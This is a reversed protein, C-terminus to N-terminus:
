PIKVLDALVKTQDDFQRDVENMIKTKLASELM